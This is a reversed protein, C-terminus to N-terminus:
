VNLPGNKKFIRENMHKRAAKKAKRANARRVQRSEKKPEPPEVANATTVGPVSPKALVMNPQPKPTHVVRQKGTEEDTVTEVM